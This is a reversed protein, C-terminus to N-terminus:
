LPRGFRAMFSIISIDKMKLEGPRVMLDGDCDFPTETIPAHTVALGGRIRASRALARPTAFEALSSNTSLFITFVPYALFRNLCSCLFDYRTKEDDNPPTGKTLSHAEDFYIVLKVTEHGDFSDLISILQGLAERASEAAAFEIVTHVDYDVQDAVESGEFKSRRNALLEDHRKQIEPLIQRSSLQYRPKRSPQYVRVLIDKSAAKTAAKYLRPRISELHSSWWKALDGASTIRKKSLEMQWSELEMKVETFVGGLFKLYNTKLIQPDTSYAQTVLYNRVDDDPIPFALDTKQTLLSCSSLAPTLVKVTV